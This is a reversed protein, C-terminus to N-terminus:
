TEWAEKCVFQPCQVRPPCWFFQACAAHSVSIIFLFVFHRRGPNNCFLVLEQSFVISWLCQTYARILLVCQGAVRPTWRSNNNSANVTYLVVNRYLRCQARPFPTLIFTNWWSTTSFYSFEVFHVIQIYSPPPYFVLPAPPLPAPM